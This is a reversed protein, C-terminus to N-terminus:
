GDFRFRSAPRLYLDANGNSSLSICLFLVCRSRSPFDRNAALEIYLPHFFVVWGERGNKPICDGGWNMHFRSVQIWKQGIQPM